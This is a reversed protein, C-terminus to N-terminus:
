TRPRRAETRALLAFGLACALFIAGSCLWAAHIGGHRAVLGLALLGSAGGLTFSMASMSLVTAREREAVHDNVWADVVPITLSM